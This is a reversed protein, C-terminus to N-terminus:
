SAGELYNMISAGLSSGRLPQRLFENAGANRYSEPDGPIVLSSLVIVPIAAVQSNSHSRIQLLAELGEQGPRQTSLVVVDPLFEAAREPLEFINRIKIVRYQPGSPHCDDAPILLDYEDVFLVLPLGSQEIFDVPATKDRQLPATGPEDPDWPLNVTFRSGGGVRSEVEVSGGHMVTLRHVLSLGLGTGEFERALSGDIQVFPKFLRVFDAPEIGIGKDWVCLRVVQEERSATVDLGIEGGQQSFKIANSILNVLIQKLRRTDAQLFIPEVPPSYLIQQNKQQAMGKAMQLSAQCVDSLNTPTFHLNLKGAEIKSLDLIDNILALLHQGSDKIVGLAAKQGENLNGNVGALLTESFGLIGTLPTRLEHSVSALFEERSRVARALHVNAQSLEATRQEVRIELESAYEQTLLEAKKRESIDQKVAIFNTIEGDESRVPTITMEEHYYSGDKRRNVLEGHWVRGDLITNWMNEYFRHDQLGSKVLDRPNRGFAEEKVKYGTLATFAPNAWQISGDRGTIVIANASAELAMSQLRLKDEALKRATIDQSIVQVGVLIGQLDLLPQYTSRFWRIGSPLEFRSEFESIERSGMVTHMRETVVKGQVPGFLELASRGLAEGPKVGLAQCSLSNQLVLRCQTDFISNATGSNEFVLQYQKKSEQLAQEIEKRETIDTINSVFYLPSNRADRILTTNVHAWLISGKKHFYRIEFQSSDREGSLICRISEKSIAIDDPHTIDLFDIQRLDDLSYGLINGLAANVKILKGDLGTITKGISTKEFIAKFSTESNELADEVWRRETIDQVTGSLLHPAGSEDLVMEGAEAWVVHVSGDPWVIRYDLPIPRGNTAVSQNSENVRARDDPHIAQAVVESLVGSFSEKELGFINYMEDSWDLQGTKVNWTWSGIRAFHQAKRLKLESERLKEEALQHNIHNKRMMLALRASTGLRKLDGKLIYNVAGLLMCEIAMDENLPATLIILPIQPYYQQLLQLVQLGGFNPLPFGSLVLDPNSSKLAILFAAETPICECISEPVYKRIEVMALEADGPHEEIFLIRVVDNM